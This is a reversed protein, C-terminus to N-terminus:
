DGDYSDTTQSMGFNGMLEEEWSSLTWRLPNEVNYITDLNLSSNNSYYTTDWNEFSGNTITQGFGIMPLCMLLILLKKMKIYTNTLM